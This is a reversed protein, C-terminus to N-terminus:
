GETYRLLLWNRGDLLKALSAAAGAPVDSYLSVADEAASLAEARTFPTARRFGLYRAGIGFLCLGHRQELHRALALNQAPTLDSVFYGNPFAAIMDAPTALPVFQFLLHAEHALDLADDPDRNVTVLDRVGYDAQWPLLAGLSPFDPLGAAEIRALCTALTADDRLPPVPYDGTGDWDAPDALQQADAVHGSTYGAQGLDDLSALVLHPANQQSLDAHLAMLAAFSHLHRATVGDCWLTNFTRPRQEAFPTLTVPKGRRFGFSAM